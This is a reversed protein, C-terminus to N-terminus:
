LKIEFRKERLVKLSFLTSIFHFKFQNSLALIFKGVTMAYHNNLELSGDKFSDSIDLYM